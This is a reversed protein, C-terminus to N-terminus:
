RLRLNEPIQSQATHAKQQAQKPKKDSGRSQTKKANVKWRPLKESLPSRSHKAEEKHSWASITEALNFGLFPVMPTLPTWASITEALNFGLFLVM